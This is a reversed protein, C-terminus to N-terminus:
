GSGNVHIGFYFTCLSVMVCHCHISQLAGENIAQIQSVAKVLRLLSLAELDPVTGPTGPRNAGISTGFTDYKLPKMTCAHVHM